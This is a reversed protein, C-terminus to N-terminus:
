FDFSEEELPIFSENAAESNENAMITRNPATLLYETNRIYHALMESSTWNVSRAIREPPVNNELSHNVFYVRASHAGPRADASINLWDCRTNLRTMIQPTDVPVNFKEPESYSEPNPICFVGNKLEPFDDYLNTFCTIPCFLFNNLKPFLIIRSDRHGYRNSKGSTINIKWCIAGQRLRIRTMSDMKLNLVDKIRAGSNLCWVLVVGLVRNWARDERTEGLPGLVFQLIKRWTEVIVLNPKKIRENPIFKAREQRYLNLACSIAKENTIFTRLDLEIFCDEVAKVYSMFTQDQVLKERSRDLAMLFDLIDETTWDDLRRSKARATAYLLARIRSFRKFTDSRDQSAIMLEQGTKFKM